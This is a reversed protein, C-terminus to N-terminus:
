IPSVEGTQTQGAALAYEEAAPQTAHYHPAYGAGTSFIADATDPANGQAQASTGTVTGYDPSQSMDESAVVSSAPTASGSGSAPTTIDPGGPNVGKKAKAKKAPKKKAPKKVPKKAKADRRLVAM